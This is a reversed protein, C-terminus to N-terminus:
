EVFVSHVVGKSDRYVKVSIILYPNGSYGNEFLQFNVLLEPYDIYEVSIGDEFNDAISRPFFYEWSQYKQEVIILLTDPSVKYISHPIEMQIVVPKGNINDDSPGEEYRCFEVKEVIALTNKEQNLNNDFLLSDSTNPKLTDIRANNLMINKLQFVAIQSVQIDKNGCSYVLVLM